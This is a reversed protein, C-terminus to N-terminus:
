RVVAPSSADRILVTPASSGDAPVVWVDSTLVSSMGDDRPVGYLLRSDDLWEVQDDISTEGGLVKEMGSALDLVAIRWDGPSRGELKKYAIRREDPSLSPCEADARMTTVTRSTLSGRALWNQGGFAVTVFFTQNDGAFTVGWYNRDVPRVTTGQHVLRFDELNLAKRTSLPTIVTRTSFGEDNYSDGAVFSTTAALGADASLRARSPTGTLTLAADPAGPTLVRAHYGPAIGTIEGLCLTRTGAAYVRECSLDTIARKGGPDDLPVLAVRGHHPGSAAHRFAIHPGAGIDSVAATAQVPAARLERQQTGRAFVLYAVTAATLVAFVMAVAVVRARASM